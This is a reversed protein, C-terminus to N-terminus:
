KRTLFFWLILGFAYVDCKENFPEGMMVEPAMWLPTGKAGDRGDMLNTGRPKLQSLGFDCIKCNYNEDFLLNSAKLDRTSFCLFFALM